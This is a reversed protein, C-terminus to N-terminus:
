RRPIDQPIDQKVKGQEKKILDEFSRQDGVFKVRTLGSYQCSNDVPSGPLDRRIIGLCEDTGQVRYEIPTETHLWRYVLLIILYLALVVIYVIRKTKNSFTPNKAGM